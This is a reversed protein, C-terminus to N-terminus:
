KKQRYGKSKGKYDLWDPHAEVNVRSYCDVYTLREKGHSFDSRRMYMGCTQCQYMKVVPTLWFWAGKEAFRPGPNHHRSTIEKIIAEHGEFLQTLQHDSTSTCEWFDPSASVLFGDREAAQMIFNSM